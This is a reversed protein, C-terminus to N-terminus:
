THNVFTSLVSLNVGTLLSVLKCKALKNWHHKLEGKLDADQTSVWSAKGNIQSQIRSQFRHTTPVPHFFIGPNHTKQPSCNQLCYKMPFEQWQIILFHQLTIPLFTNSLCGSKHYGCQNPKILQGEVSCQSQIRQSQPM